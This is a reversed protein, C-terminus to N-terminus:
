KLAKRPILNRIHAASAIITPTFFDHHIGSQIRAARWDRLLVRVASEAKGNLKPTYAPTAEVLIGRPTAWEQMYKHYLERGQDLVINAIRVRKKNMLHELLSVVKKFIEHKNSSVIAWTNRSAEDQVM